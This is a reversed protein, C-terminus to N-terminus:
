FSMREQSCKKEVAEKVQKTFLEFHDKNRFRIMSQFKKDGTKQDVYDKSPFNIWRKGEKQHLTCGYIELGMKEIFIDFYGLLSGKNISKYRLCEIM